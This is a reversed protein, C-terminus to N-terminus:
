SFTSMLRGDTASRVSRAAMEVRLWCSSVVIAVEDLANDARTQSARASSGVCGRDLAVQVRTLRHGIRSVDDVDIPQAGLLVCCRGRRRGRGRGYRLRKEHNPKAAARCIRSQRLRGIPQTVGTTTWLTKGLEIYGHAFAARIAAHEFRLSPTARSLSRQHRIWRGNEATRRKEAGRAREDVRAGERAFLRAAARGIGSAAGTIVIGRAKFTKM